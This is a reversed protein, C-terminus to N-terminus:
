RTNKSTDILEGDNAMAYVIYMFWKLPDTAYYRHTYIIRPMNKIIVWQITRNMIIYYMGLM